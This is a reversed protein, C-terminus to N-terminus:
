GTDIFPAGLSLKSSNLPSSFCEACFGKSTSNLKSPNLFGSDGCSLQM